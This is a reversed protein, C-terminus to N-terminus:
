SCWIKFVIITIDDKLEYSYNKKTEELIANAIEQTNNTKINLLIEEIWKGSQIYNKSDTVGDSVMVIIDNDYLKKTTIETEINNLIGVPLSSSNLIEVNGRRLLFTQVAGIKIFEAIGTYLDVVCIDLTAFSEKSSKLFLASNIMSLTLENSFGANLFDELLEITALSEQKAKAGSGMGDSIAILYKGNPLSISSHSDGSETSCSKHASVTTTKIRYKQEEILRITCISNNNEKKIICDYCDRCMKKNLVDNAINLITKTCKNPIYCPEVKLLVEFKGKSNETVIVDKVEINNRKLAQKMKSSYIENFNVDECLTESLQHMISSIGILQEGVLQRSEIIKNKWMLNLKHIEITKNLVDIFQVTNICMRLFEKTVNNRNFNGVSDQINLLNVINQYSNYFNKGWCTNKLSCQLCVKSVVEDILNSIDNQNLNTKQEALNSFTKSLKEFSTAYTNLKSSTISKLKETYTASEELFNNNFSLTAIKKCPILLFILCSSIISAIISNTFLNLDILLCLVYMVGIYGFTFIIKNKERLFGILISCITFIILMNSTFNNTLILLFCSLISCVGGIASGYIYTVFLILLCILFDSVNVQFFTFNSSGCVVSGILISLSIIHENNIFKKNEELIYEISKSLILTLFFTLCFELISIVFYYASFGNLIAIISGAFFIASSNFISKYFICKFKEKNFVINFIFLLFICIIYKEIYINGLNSLFGLISFIIAINFLKKQFLINGLFSIAIPNLTYFITIRSIFFSIICLFTYVAFKKNLKSKISSILNM